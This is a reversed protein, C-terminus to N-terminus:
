NALNQIWSGKKLMRAGIFCKIVDLSNCIIYLPLIPLDTFRSLVFAVPIMCCWVYGSDFIFTILTKGGSRLTFYCTNCFANIPGALAVIVLLKAALSRVEETTNYIRPFLPSFAIMIVGIAISGAISVM